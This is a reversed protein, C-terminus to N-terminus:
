SPGDDVAGCVFGQTERARGGENRPNRDVTLDFRRDLPSLQPRPRVKERPHSTFSRIRGFLGSKPNDNEYPRSKALIQLSVHISTDALFPAPATNPIDVEREFSLHSSPTMHPSYRPVSVTRISASPPSRQSNEDDIASVPMATEYSSVYLTVRSAALGVGPSYIM